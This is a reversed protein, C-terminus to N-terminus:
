RRKFTEVLKAAADETIGVLEFHMAACDLVPPGSRLAHRDSMAKMGVAARKLPLGAEKALREVMFVACATIGGLFLEIATAAEGPGGHDILDDTVFHNTRAQWLARGPTGSSYTRVEGTLYRTDAM